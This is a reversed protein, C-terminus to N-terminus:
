PDKSWLAFIIIMFEPSNNVIMAVMDGCQVNMEKLKREVKAIDTVLDHYTWSRGEFLLAEKMSAEPGLRTYTEHMLHYLSWDSEGHKKYLEEVTKATKIKIGYLAKIDNVLNYKANLYAASAVTAVAALPLAM